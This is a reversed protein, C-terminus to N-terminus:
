KYHIFLLSSLKEMECELQIMMRKHQAENDQLKIQEYLWVVQKFQEEVEEHNPLYM